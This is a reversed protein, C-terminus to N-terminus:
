IELIKHDNEHEVYRQYASLKDVAIEVSGSTLDVEEETGDDDTTVVKLIINTIRRM